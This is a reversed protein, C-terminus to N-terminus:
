CCAELGECLHCSGLCCCCNYNYKYTINHFAHDRFSQTYRRAHTSKGGGMRKTAGHMSMQSCAQENPRHPPTNEASVTHDLAQPECQDITDPAWWTQTSSIPQTCPSFDASLLLFDYTLINTVDNSAYHPCVMFVLTEQSFQFAFFEDGQNNTKKAISFATIDFSIKKCRPVSDGDCIPFVFRFINKELHCNTFQWYLISPM